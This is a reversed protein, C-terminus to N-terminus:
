CRWRIIPPDTAKLAAIMDADRWRLTNCSAIVIPERADNVIVTQALVTASQCGYYDYNSKPARLIFCAIRYCSVPSLVM